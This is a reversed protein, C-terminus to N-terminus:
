DAVQSTCLQNFLLKAQMGCCCCWPCCARWVSRDVYVNEYVYMTRKRRICIGLVRVLDGNRYSFGSRAACSHKQPVPVELDTRTRTDRQNTKAM